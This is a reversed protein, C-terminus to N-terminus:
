HTPQGWLLCAISCSARHQANCSHQLGKSQAYVRSLMSYKTGINHDQRRSAWPSDPTHLYHTHQSCFWKRGISLRGKVVQFARGILPSQWASWYLVVRLRVQDACIRHWMLSATHDLAVDLNPVTCVQPKLTRRSLQWIIACERDTVDSTGKMLCQIHPYFQSVSFSPCRREWLGEAYTHLLISCQHTLVRGSSDITEQSHSVPWCSGGKKMSVKGVSTCNYDSQLKLIKVDMHQM